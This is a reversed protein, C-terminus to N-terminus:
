GWYREPSDRVGHKRHEDWGGGGGWGGMDRLLIGVQLGEMIFTYTIHIEEAHNRVEVGM